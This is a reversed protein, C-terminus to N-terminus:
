AGDLPVLIYDLHKGVDRFHMPRLLQICRRKADSFRIRYGLSTVAAANMPPALGVFVGARMSMPM